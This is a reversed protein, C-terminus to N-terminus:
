TEKGYNGALILLDKHDIKGDANLDALPNYNKDGEESGYASALLLLDKHDVKYDGNIDGASRGEINIVMSNNTENREKVDNDCDVIVSMIYTGVYGIKVKFRVITSNNGALELVTEKHYYDIVSGNVWYLELSVNFSDASGPDVNSVAVVIDYEIDAYLRADPYPLQVSTVVLDCTLPPPTTKGYNSALILLDKHDVKGSCDIDAEPIYRPDGIESGYASALLLLDKHGVEDDGNIDGPITIKVLGDVLYNDALDTESPVTTATTSIAYVGCPVGTTNWKFTITTSNKSALTVEEMEITTTNACSTVNFTETYDGQNTVTVNVGMTFGQGLVTKSPTIATIAIDHKGGEFQKYAYTSTNCADERRDIEDWDANYLSVYALNYPGDVGHKFIDPGSFQLKVTQISTNLYTSNSTWTMHQRDTDYLTAHINYKGAKTVNIDAEVTLHNYLGDYDTDIGYDSYSGTFEAPTTQFMEHSASIFGYPETSRGFLANSDYLKVNEAVLVLDPYHEAQQRINIGSFNLSILQTGANLHLMNSANALNTGTQLDNLQGTLYYCGETPINAEWETEVCDALGDNDEDLLNFSVNDLRQIIRTPKLAANNSKDTERINDFPDVLVYINYDGPPASWLESITTKNRAGIFPITRNFLIASTNVKITNTALDLYYPPKNFVLLTVNEADFNGINSVTVNLTIDGEMYDSLTIDEPYVALDPSAKFLIRHTNNTEDGEQIINNPDVAVFIYYLGSTLASTDWVIGVNKTAGPALSEITTTGIFTKPDEFSLSDSYYFEVPINTAEVFGQNSITANIIIENSSNSNPYTVHAINVTLDPLVTTIHAINNTEDEEEIDNLPDVEVYIDHSTAAATPVAWDVSVTGNEGADITDIIQAAGIQPGEPGDTFKVEIRDISLDGVNHVTANITVTEGPAPNSNSLTIDQSTIELDTFIPHSLLYLSTNGLVSYTETTANTLPEWEGSTENYVETITKTEYTVEQKLYTSKIENKSNIVPTFALDVSEDDTLQNKVSWSNHIKDFVSYFADVGSDSIQQWLIVPNNRPNKTLKLEKIGYTTQMLSPSSWAGDHTCYYINNITENQTSEDRAWAVLANGDSDYVVAPLKDEFLNYTVNAPTKWNLGNWTSYYIEKDDRSTSNNDTGNSWVAIAKNTDFDFRVADQIEIDNLALNPTTWAAGNWISYYYDEPTSPTKGSISELSLSNDEDVLWMAMVNGNEDAALSPGYDFVSNSTLFEPQSWTKTSATFISYAIEGYKIVESFDSANTPLTENNIATWVAVANGNSDYTVAPKVDPIRNDTIPEPTTWKYGDWTTYHIEFSQPHDKAPDDHVYLVMLNDDKSLALSPEAEPFINRILMTETTPSSHSIGLNAVFEAYDENIYDREMLRWGEPKSASETHVKGTFFDYIWRRGWHDSWFLARYDLRVMVGVEFSNLSFDGKSDIEAGLGILIGGTVKLAAIGIDFKGEIRGTARIKGTARDFVLVEAENPKQIIVIDLELDLKAGVSIVIFNWEWIPIGYIDVSFTDEVQTLKMMDKRPEFSSKSGVGINIADIYNGLGFEVEVNSDTTAEGSRTNFDANFSGKVQPILGWVGGLFPIWDPLTFGTLGITKTFNLIHYLMELYVYDEAFEKFNPTEFKWDYYYQVFNKGEIWGTPERKEWPIEELTPHSEIIYFYNGVITGSTCTHGVATITMVNNGAPFDAMQFPPKVITETYKVMEGNETKNKLDDDKLTVTTAELGTPELVLKRPWLWNQWNVTVKLENKLDWGKIFYQVYKQVADYVQPFEKFSVIEREQRTGIELLLMVSVIARVAEVAQKPSADSTSLSLSVPSAMATKTFTFVSVTVGQDDTEAILTSLTGVKGGDTTEAYAMTVGAVQLPTGKDDQLQAQLLYQGEGQAVVDLSFQYGMLRLRVLPYEDVSGDLPFIKKYPTDGIGDRNIDPGIYDSWFNGEGESSWENNTGYDIAHYGVDERTANPLFNNHYIKNGECDPDRFEIANYNDQFTNNVITNTDSSVLAIGRLIHNKVTNSDITTIHSANILIGFNNNDNISNSYLTTDTTQDHLLIGLEENLSANNNILYNRASSYIAIGYINNTADNGTMNNDNSDDLYIGIGAYTASNEILTNKSGTYLAFGAYYCNYVENDIVDNDSTRDLYIGNRVNFVTNNEVKNNVSASSVFIGHSGYIYWGGIVATENVAGFGIINDTVNNNSSSSIIFIGAYSNNLATNRIITNYSSVSLYIGYAIHFTNDVYGGQYGVFNDALTNYDSNSLRVGYYQYFGDVRNDTVNNHDSDDLFIGYYNNSGATNNVVTNYDSFHLRIGVQTNLSANNNVLNNQSSSSLTIGYRNRNAINNIITNDNSSETLSIGNESNQEAINNVVTNHSSGSLRIGYGNNSVDSDSISGHDAGEFYVGAHGTGAGEITLGEINVQDTTVTFVNDAGDGLVSTASTGAYSIINIKETSVHVNGDHLGPSVLITYGPTAANVAEQISNFYGDATIIPQLTIPDVVVLIPITNILVGFIVADFSLIKAYVYKEATNVDTEPMINWHTGNYGYIGLSKEREALAGLDAIAYNIKLFAWSNTSTNSVHLYKDINTLFRDPDPPPFGVSSVGIDRSNLSIALNDLRADQILNRASGDSSYFYYHMSNLITSNTFTNDSSNQLRVGVSSGTVYNDQFANNHSSNMFIPKFNDRMENGTIQNGSSSQLHIWENNDEGYNNTVNNNSSSDLYIGRYNNSVEVNTVNVLTNSNLRIGYANSRVYGNTVTLGSCSDMRIGYVNNEAHFDDITGGNTEYLFLGAGGTENNNRVTVDSLTIDTSNIISIKGLNSVYPAQLILNQITIGEENLYHYYIDGNVTNDEATNYYSDTDAFYLGIGNSNLVNNSIQNNGSSDLHIGYLFNSEVVNYSVINGTSNDVSIGWINNSANNLSIANNPSSSFVIGYISDFATNNFLTNDHSSLLSIGEDNSSVTSNSITNGASERILMGVAKNSDATVNDITNDNSSLSLFIGLSNNSADNKAITNGSSSYLVIGLLDNFGVINNALINNNSNDLYIGFRNNRVINDSINGYSSSEFYIGALLPAGTITFGNITVNDARAKFVDATTTVAQVTTVSAGAGIITLQKYVDVNEMYTGAEVLITHSDETEAADIAEQIAFYDLGTDINRVPLFVTFYVTESGMYGLTDNAWVTVYHSGHTVGTLTTNGSTIIDAGDLSYGTWDVGSPDEITFTLAISSTYYTKDQPSIIEIFPPSSDILPLWDGGSMIRGSCNYPLFTDGLGDGDLDTGEYDSWFNGGLYPGGMINTGLTKTTNWYNGAGFARVLWFDGQGAGYSRTEGALVYVDDGTQVVSYAFDDNEGGFTADWLQNGASDTKLLWFDYGGAGFSNTYGAIAYGGDSTQIVSYAVDHNSGGFTRDWLHNGSSDTRVLWFDAGSSGGLTYGGDSTQVVSYAYGLGAFTRNWQHNGDRDTKVLWFNIDEEETCGALAYGEDKTQIISYAVDDGGGWGGFTRNWIHNGSSDTRVLWFDYRAGSSYTYGAIAYGGDSTQVVSYANDYPSRSYTKNWLHNGYSDTKVLWFYAREYLDVKTGALAYGGDSTQVVSEAYDGLGSGDYTQNWLHNGSADTKVLWFDDDGVVSYTYGAIAYGGDSTQVISKAVDTQSGGYTTTNANPGAIANAELNSFFNNYIKNKGSQSFKIGINNGSITNNTITNRESPFVGAIPDSLPTLHIGINNSKIINGAILTNDEGQLYIGNEGNNSVNNNTVNNYSWGGYVIISIGNLSNYTVENNNIINYSSNYSFWGGLEIGDRNNSAKNNSIINYDSSDLLIGKTNNSADSNIITNNNSNYLYIGQINNSAKINTLSNNSSGRLHVGIMLNWNATINTLTNNSSGILYIGYRNNSANINEIRSYVSNGSLYIGSVWGTAGTVTFGKINVNPVTVYFVHDNPNSANVTTVGAGAGIITLRKYVDVNETFTGADVLITQNDVTEVADIAEQITTYHLDTDVNHVPVLVLPLYDGGVKIYGSSDHPINTDGIGDYNQDVGEYDSWFNGGIYPGGAINKGSTKAINWKNNASYPCNYANITNDFYNNYVINLPGAYYLSIGAGGLRANSNVVNSSFTNYSSYHHVEIGTYNNSTVRNGHFTNYNSSDYFRIGYKNSNVNNGSITNNKSSQLYIGYVNSSMENDSITNNYSDGVRIGIGSTPSTAHSLTNGFITNYASYYVAIGAYITFCANNDWVTNNYSYMLQVGRNSGCVDNGFVDTNNSDSLQINRGGNYSANNYSVTNDSSGELLIGDNSNSSVNNNTITINSGFSLFIGNRNSSVNNDSIYAEIVDELRIGAIAFKMPASTVTFRSISVCDATVNFVPDQSPYVTQVTTVSAGAGVISLGTKNIVVNETYTGARVRITEYPPAANVAEQITDYDDPVWITSTAPDGVLSDSDNRVGGFWQPDIWDNDRRKDGSAWLEVSRVLVDLEGFEGDLFDDVDVVSGGVSSGAESGRSIVEFGPVLFVSLLIVLILTSALLVKRCIVKKVREM